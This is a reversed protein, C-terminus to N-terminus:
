MITLTSIATLVVAAMAIISWSAWYSKSGPIDYDPTYKTYDLKYRM